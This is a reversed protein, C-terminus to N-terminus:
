GVLDTAQEQANDLATELDVQGQLAAIVNQVVIKRIDPTQAEFGLVVQPLSSETLDDFTTLYPMDQLSESSRETATAVSSAGLIEQLKVQNEPELAWRIFTAAEEKASSAENIVIPALISGQSRVPFPIPAADFNLEPSEARLHTAYGGNNLEMAVKGEAFMRRFTAADAGRPIVNADYLDKYAQLGELNEPANITLNEGDSWAGGFGYVYNFIDQWVGAEEAETQRFALGFIDGSTLSQATDFFEEYTTPPEPILDANYFMAYNSAEFIIGHRVGDHVMFQDPQELLEYQSVDILDDLPAILGADSAAEFEPMDFRVLDPGEGGGMQTLVTQGFTPYPVSAAEVRIEDQSANFEDIWEQLQPGRGPDGFTSAAFALTTVGGESEGGGSESDSGCGTSVVAALGVAAAAVTVRRVRPTRM